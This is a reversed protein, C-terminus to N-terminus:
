ASGREFNGKISRSIRDLDRYISVENFGLADLQLRLDRKNASPIHFSQLSRANRLPEQGAQIPSQGVTFMGSQFRIRDFLLPAVVARPKRRNRLDRGPLYDELTQDSETLLRPHGADDDGAEQNLEHPHILFFEGDPELQSDPSAECAFYLAVLPSQSWDLLRTPLSHHQAFTMWGWEDFDYQLGAAAAEQRFRILMASENDRHAPKRFASPELDWTHDKHGRYWIERGDATVSSLIRVLDEVSTIYATQTASGVDALTPQTDDTM